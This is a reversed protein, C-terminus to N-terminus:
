AFLRSNLVANSITSRPINLKIAVQYQKLGSALLEHIVDLTGQSLQNARRGKRACDLNNDGITGVFLHAPNICAPIDCKHCVLLGEPIPGLLHTYIYRHLLTKAGLPVIKGYGEKTKSGRWLMCGTEVATTRALLVKAANVPDKYNVGKYNGM